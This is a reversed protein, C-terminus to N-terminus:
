MVLQTCDRSQLDFYRDIQQNRSTTGLALGGWHDYSDFYPRTITGYNHVYIIQSHVPTCWHELLLLLLTQKCLYYCVNGVSLCLWGVSPLADRRAWTWRESSSDMQRVVFLRIRSCVSSLTPTNFSHVNHNDVRNFVDFESPTSSSFNHFTRILTPRLKM